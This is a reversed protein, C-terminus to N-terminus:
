APIGAMVKNVYNQTEAPAHALWNTSYSTIAKSVNGPGWNYAAVAKTWTGFEKYLSYLFNGAYQLAANPNLPSADPHYKPMIQAIGVAGASSRMTGNIVDTRFASEAQILNVLLGSPISLANEIGNIIPIFHAKNEATTGLVFATDKKMLLIVGLLTGGLLIKTNM